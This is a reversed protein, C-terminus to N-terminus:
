EVQRVADIRSYNFNPSFVFNLVLCLFRLACITWLLWLRGAGFSTRVFWVISVMAFFFPVHTWRLRAGFQEPTVARMLVVECVAVGAVAAAAVAFLLHVRNRRHLLWVVLHILALTTCASAAMLWISNLGTLM